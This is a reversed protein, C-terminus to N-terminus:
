GPVDTTGRAWRLLRHELQELLASLLVVALILIVMVALVAAVDFQSSYTQVLVGLGSKAAIMEGVVAGGTCYILTLKLGAFVSPLAWPLRVHWFLQVNSAGYLRSMLLMDRDVTRLGGLTSMLMIFFGLSTALVVKSAMEIGFWLIFIPGLAIRPMSNLAAIYPGLLNRARESRDLFVAGLVGLVVSACFSAAVEFATTLLHSLIGAETFLRVLAQWVALPSSVFASDAFGFQVSLQWVLLFGLLLALREAQLRWWLSAAGHHEGLDVVEPIRM